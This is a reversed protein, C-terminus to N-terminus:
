CALIHKNLVLNHTNHQIIRLLSMIVNTIVIIVIIIIIIITITIIFNYKHTNQKRTVILQILGHKRSQWMATVSMGYHVAIIDAEM